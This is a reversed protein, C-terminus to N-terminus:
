WTGRGTRDILVPGDSFETRHARIWEVAQRLSLGWYETEYRRSGASLGGVLPSFYVYEWPHARVLWVGPELVLLVLVGMAATRMKGAGAREFLRLWGVGAVVCMSPVVFLFHRM